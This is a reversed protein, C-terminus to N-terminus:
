FVENEEPLTMGETWVVRESIPTLINILLPLAPDRGGLKKKLNKRILFKM